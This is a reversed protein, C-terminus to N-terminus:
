RANAALAGPLERLDALIATGYKKGLGRRTALDAWFKETVVVDCYPIAVSLASIDLMDNKAAPRSVQLDRQTVLEVETNASPMSAMFAMAKSRGLSLLDGTLLGLEELASSIRPELYLFLNAACARYRVASSADSDRTRYANVRIALDEETKRLSALAEIRRDGASLMFFLGAPTDFIRSWRPNQKLDSAISPFLFDIGRGFAVPATPIQRVFLAAVARAVESASITVQPALLHGQSIIVMVKALRQRREDHSDKSM